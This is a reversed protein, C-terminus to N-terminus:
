TAKLSCSEGATTYAQSIPTFGSSSVPYWEAQHAFVLNIFHGRSDQICGVRKEWPILGSPIKLIM